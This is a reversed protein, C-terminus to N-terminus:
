ELLTNKTKELNVPAVDQEIDVIQDNEMILGVIMCGPNAELIQFVKQKYHPHGEIIDDILYLLIYTM